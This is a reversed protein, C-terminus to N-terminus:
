VATTACTMAGPSSANQSVSARIALRHHRTWRGVSLGTERVPYSVSLSENSLEREGCNDTDPSIPKTHQAPASTAAIVNPWPGKGTPMACPPRAASASRPWALWGASAHGADLRGSRGPGTAYQVHVASTVRITAASAPRVARAQIRHFLRPACGSPTFGFAPNARALSRRVSTTGSGCCPRSVSPWTPRRRMAASGCTLRATTPGVPHPLVTPKAIGGEEFPASGDDGGGDLVVQEVGCESVALAAARDPDVVRGAGRSLLGRLPGRECGARSPGSSHADGGPEAFCGLWAGVVEVIAVVPVRLGALRERGVQM